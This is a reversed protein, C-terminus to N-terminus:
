PGIQANPIQAQVADIKQLKQQLYLVKPKNPVLRNQRATMATFSPPQM